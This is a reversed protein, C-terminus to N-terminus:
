PSGPPEVDDAEMASETDEGSSQMAVTADLGSDAQVDKASAVPQASGTTSLSALLKDAISKALVSSTTGAAAQPNSAIQESRLTQLDELAQSLSAYRDEPVKAVLKEFFADLEPVADPCTAHLSPIAANQHAMLKKVMSEAEYMPRGTALYWLTAGLSYIDARADVAKTAMAQEPAMFDVTGMIMGTGTLQDTESEASEIRALGMDLIRVMGDGDLLLNSPKIDRHIIGRTHAYELGRAAQEICNLAVFIDLPGHGQVIAALDAGEVYQMVLYHTGNCEDADYATVINQHDLKAAARAERHFRQVAEESKTLSPSLVKLAVTRDMRRHRAKVVVGMGGDGLKDTVVYNGLVLSKHRAAYIERAQFRTLKRQRVLLTALHKVDGIKDEPLTTLVAELEQASVLGSEIVRQSFLDM